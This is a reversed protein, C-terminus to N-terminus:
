YGLWALVAAGAYSPHDGCEEVFDSFKLSHQGEIERIAEARTVTAEVAQDFTM